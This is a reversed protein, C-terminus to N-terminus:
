CLVRPSQSRHRLWGHYAAFLHQRQAKLIASITNIKPLCSFAPLKRFGLVLYPIPETSFPLSCSPRIESRWFERLFGLVTTYLGLTSPQASLSLDSPRRLGPETFSETFYPMLCLFCPMRHGGVPVCMVCV